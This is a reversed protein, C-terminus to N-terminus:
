SGGPRYSILACGGLDARTALAPIRRERRDGASLAITTAPMTAGITAPHAVTGDLLAGRWTSVPPL